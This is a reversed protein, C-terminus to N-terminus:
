ATLSQRLRGPLVSGAAFLLGELWPGFGPARHGLVHSLRLNQALAFAADSALLLVLVALVAYGGALITRRRAPVRILAVGFVMGVLLWAIAVRALPQADFGALQLLPLADGVRPGVAFWRLGRLAYLWGMGALLSALLLVMAAGAALVAVLARTTRTARTAAIAPEDLTADLSM